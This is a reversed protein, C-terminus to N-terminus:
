RSVEMRNSIFISILFLVSVTGIIKAGFIIMSGEQTYFEIANMLINSKTQAIAMLGGIITAPLLVIMMRHIRTITGLLYGLSSLLFLYFTMAILGSLLEQGTLGSDTAIITADTMFFIVVRLLFETFVTLTGGILSILFLFIINSLDHSLLNGVFPNSSEWNTKTALSIAHIIIWIFTFFVVNMISYFSYNIEIADSSYSGNVTGSMSLLLAIIQLVVLSTFVGNNTNLKYIFQDKVVTNLSVRNLSM